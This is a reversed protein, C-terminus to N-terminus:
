KKLLFYTIEVEEKFNGKPNIDLLVEKLEREFVNINDGLLRKNCFSTSYLYGILSEMNWEYIFKFKGKQSLKFKSEEFYDEFSKQDSPFEGKGAKRKEGLWKKIIKITEKQWTKKGSWFSTGALVVMGGFQTLIDYSKNLVVDKDMWHFANGCLILDFKGLEEGIKESEMTIFNINSINKESSVKKAENIMEQDIDIGIVEKFSKHLPIALKGTGCGLDLLRGKGDVEYFKTIIDLLEQPYEIRYKSYYKATGVFLEKNSFSM